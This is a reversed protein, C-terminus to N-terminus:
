QPVLGIETGLNKSVTKLTDNIDTPNTSNEFSQVKNWNDALNEVSYGAVPDFCAGSSREWRVRSIWGGGVEFLQGNDKCNESCLWVALPTVLEPKLGERMEPSMVTATLRSAALPALTNVHVGKSRGEQALTQTLGHLGLKMASYNAQGFNGYIGASSSTMLVRGYGQERMHPWAARTVEFSGKMHVKYILEWDEHSMKHFASDRLIGANNVVVDVRGFTDMASEVIRAGDEVSDTNPIAKGGFANIEDAVKQAISASKGEGHGSGGLDNVVVKAGRRAFETAHCKGLGNGAGTVIVVRDDFRVNEM